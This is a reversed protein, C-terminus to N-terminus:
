NIKEAAQRQWQEEQARIQPVSRRFENPDNAKITYNSIFTNGGQQGGLDVPVKRGRSLPIVAEDDHLIAPIGGTVGGSQYRPAGKWASATAAGVALPQNSYGGEEFLGGLMNSMFGGGGSQLIGGGPLLQTASAGGLLWQALPKLLAQQILIRSIDAIISDALSKFDLKGTTVFDVLADEMNNFLSTTIRGAADALTGYDDILDQLAGSVGTTEIKLKKTKKSAKDTADAAADGAEQYSGALADASAAAARNQLIIKALNKKYDLAVSSGIRNLGDLVRELNITEENLIERTGRAIERFALKAKAAATNVSKEFRDFKVPEIEVNPIKNLGEIIFNIAKESADIVGNFGSKVINVVSTMLSSFVTPLIKWTSTVIFYAAKAVNIMTNWITIYFNVVKKFITMFDLEFKLTSGKVKAWTDSFLKTIPSVADVITKWVAQATDIVTAIAARIKMWGTVVDDGVKESTNGFEVILYTLGAIAVSIIGIPSALFAISLRILAPILKATIATAVLVFAVSLHTLSDRLKLIGRSILQSIANEGQNISRIFNEVPIMLLSFSQTITPVTRGFEEALKPAANAFAKVIRDATLLGEEGLKRLQGRTVGFEEAIIESARPLQELVARLEDGALRGSALGQGLQILANRGEIANAGSVVMARNLQETFDITQQYSLGLQRTAISLRAFLQVNATLGTRTRESVGRLAVWAANQQELTRTVLRLKNEAVTVDDIINKLAIATIAAGVSAFGRSLFKLSKGLSTTRAQLGLAAKQTRNLAASAKNAGIVAGRSDV